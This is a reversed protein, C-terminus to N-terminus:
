LDEVASLLDFWEQATLERELGISVRVRHGHDMGGLVLLSETQIPVDRLWAIVAKLSGPKDPLSVSVAPRIEPDLNANGLASMTAELDGHSVVTRIHPSEFDPGIGEVNIGGLADLVNVLNQETEEPSTRVQQHM